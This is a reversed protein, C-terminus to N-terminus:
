SRPAAVFRQRLEGIGAIYSVLEDGPALWVQPTRGMGVGAPTGTFIVDGPLLPLRRSLAALMAPVSFILDRTRGKQMQNGNVACGLELDDPDNFEDPTVLWPGTPGFGPLSKALSFQPSPGAAQLIRESIDQGVTLGAVHNWADAASVRFARRGIVAVLEVEWDTHGGAPLEVETVPGTLCSPWKTFMVTPEEPVDFGSEAAHEAYNLGIALVQRPAPAPAGLDAVAFPVMEFPAPDALDVGAAWAVFEPWQDYVAQPDAAFRGQSAREVDLGATGDATVLVLRGALNGIRM